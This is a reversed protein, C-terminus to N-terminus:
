AWFEGCIQINPDAVLVNFKIRNTGFSVFSAALSTNLVGAQRTRHLICKAADSLTEGGPVVDFHTTNAEQVLSDAYGASHFPTGDTKLITFRARTPTFPLGLLTKLGPSALTFLGCYYM